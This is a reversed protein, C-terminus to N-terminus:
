FNAFKAPDVPVGSKDCLQTYAANHRQRIGMVNMHHFEGAREASTALEKELENALAEMAQEFTRDQTSNNTTM